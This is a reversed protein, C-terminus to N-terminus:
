ELNAKWRGKPDFPLFDEEIGLAKTAIGHLRRLDNGVFWRAQFLTVNEKNANQFCVLLISYTTAKEPRLKQLVTAQSEEEIIDGYNGQVYTIENRDGKKASGSSQNYFRYRREPVLLTLLADIWTTKGSGNAGTLLSNNGAPRISYVKDHFTGWNFVQMYQLRFGATNPNTSFLDYM